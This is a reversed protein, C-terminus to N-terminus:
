VLSLRAKVVCFESVRGAIQRPSYADLGFVEVPQPAEPKM